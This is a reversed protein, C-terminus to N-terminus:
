AHAHLFHEIYHSRYDRLPKTEMYRRHASLAFMDFAGKKEEFLVRGEDAVQKNVEPPVAGLNVLEINTNQFVRMLNETIAHAERYDISRAALYGIDIDSQRHTHGSVQSGFLVVLALGHKKAIVAIKKKDAESM